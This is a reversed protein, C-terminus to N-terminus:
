VVAATFHFGMNYQGIRARFVLIGSIMADSPDDFIIKDGVGFIIKDGVRARSVIKM